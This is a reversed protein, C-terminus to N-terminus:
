PRRGSPEPFVRFCIRFPLNADENKLALVLAADGVSWVYGKIVDDHAWGCEVEERCPCAVDVALGALVAIYHATM